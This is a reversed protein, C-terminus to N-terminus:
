HVAEHRSRPMHMNWETQRLGQDLLNYLMYLTSKDLTFTIGLGEEPLLQLTMVGTNGTSVNIRYALVGPEGLPYNLDPGPAYAHDFAGGKLQDLTERRSALLQYGGEREIQDTLVQLLLGSYRRTFWIRFEAESATRVKLLLRDEEAVYALNIQQLADSM